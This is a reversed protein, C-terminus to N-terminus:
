KHKNLEITENKDNDQEGKDNEKEENDTVNNVSALLNANKNAVISNQIPGKPIPGKPLINNVEKEVQPPSINKVEERVTTKITEKLEKILINVVDNVAITLQQGGGLTNVYNRKLTQQALNTHRNVRFTNHKKFRKNNFKKRSQKRIKYLKHIKGKTLNM